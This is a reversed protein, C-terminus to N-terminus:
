QRPPERAVRDALTQLLTNAQASDLREAPPLALNTRPSPLKLDIQWRWTGEDFSRSVDALPVGFARDVAEEAPTGQRMLTALERYHARREAPGLLGFQAWDRARHMFDKWDANGSLDSGTTSLLTALDYKVHTSKTVDPEFPGDRNLLVSGDDRILLGNLTNAVGMQYWPPFARTQGGVLTSQAYLLLVSQLADEIGGADVIAAINTDPGPLYKSFIRMDRAREQRKDAESLFVRRADTESLCYIALPRIQSDEDLGALDRLVRELTLFQRALRASRKESGNSIVTIHDTTLRFYPTDAHVSRSCLTACLLIALACMGALRNKM